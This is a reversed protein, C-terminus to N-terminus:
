GTPPAHAWQRGIPSLFASGLLAWVLLDPTSPGPMVPRAGAEALTAALLALLPGPAQVTEPTLCGGASLAAVLREPAKESGSLLESLRSPPLAM